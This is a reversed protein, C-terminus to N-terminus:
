SLVMTYCYISFYPLYIHYLNSALFCNQSSRAQSSRLRHLYRFLPHMSSLTLSKRYLETVPCSAIFSGESVKSQSSAQASSWAVPIISVVLELHGHTPDSSASLDMGIELMRPHLSMWQGGEDRSWLTWLTSPFVM